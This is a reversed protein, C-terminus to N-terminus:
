FELTSSSLHSLRTFPFTTSTQGDSPAAHPLMSRYDECQQLGFLLIGPAEQAAWICVRAHACEQLVASLHRKYIHAPDNEMMFKGERHSVLESGFWGLLRVGVSERCERRM